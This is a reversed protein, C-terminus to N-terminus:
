VDKEVCEKGRETIRCRPQKQKKVRTAEEVISSFPVSPFIRLMTDFLSRLCLVLQKLGDFVAARADEDTLDMTIQSHQKHVSPLQHPLPPLSIFGLYLFGGRLTASLAPLAIILPSM